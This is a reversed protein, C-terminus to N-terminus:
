SAREIDSMGQVVYDHIWRFVVLADDRSVDPWGELFEEVGEGAHLTDLLAKLPVRTNRFRISGSLIEPTAVLVHKLDEPITPLKSV